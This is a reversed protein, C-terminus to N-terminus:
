HEDESVGPTLRQLVRSRRLLPRQRCDAACGQEALGQVTTSDDNGRCAYSLLWVTLRCRGRSAGNPPHSKGGERIATVPGYEGIVSTYTVFGTTERWMHLLCAPPEMVVALREVRQLDRFLQYATSPCTMALTGSFRRQMACHIHGAVVQEVNPYRAVIASLAEAGELGGGRISFRCVRPSHPTICSSQPLAQSKGAHRRIM